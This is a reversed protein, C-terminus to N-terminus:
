TISLYFRSMLKLVAAYYGKEDEALISHQVDNRFSRLAAVSLDTV